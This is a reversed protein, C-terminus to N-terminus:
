RHIRFIMWSRKSTPLCRVVIIAAPNIPMVASAPGAQAWKTMISTGDATVHAGYVLGEGAKKLVDGASMNVPIYGVGNMTITRLSPIMQAFSTGLAAIDGFPVKLCQDLCIDKRREAIAKEISSQNFFLNSTQKALDTKKNLTDGRRKILKDFLGM